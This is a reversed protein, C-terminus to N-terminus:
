LESLEKFVDMRILHILGWYKISQYVKLGFYLVFVHPREFVEVFVDICDVLLFGNLAFQKLKVNGLLHVM